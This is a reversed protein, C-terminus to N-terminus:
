ITHLFASLPIQCDKTRTPCLLVWLYHISITGFVLNSLHTNGSNTYGCSFSNPFYNCEIQFQITLIDLSLRVTLIASKIPLVKFLYAFLLLVQYLFHITNLLSLFIAKFTPPILFSVPITIIEWIPSVQNTWLTASM